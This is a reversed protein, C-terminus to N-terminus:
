ASYGDTLIWKIVALIAGAAAAEGHWWDPHYHGASFGLM